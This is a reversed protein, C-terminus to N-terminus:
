AQTPQKNLTLVSEGPSLGHSQLFAALEAGSDRTYIEDLEQREAARRAAYHDPSPPNDRATDPHERLIKLVVNRLHTVPDRRSYEGTLDWEKAIRIATSRITDPDLQHNQALTPVLLMLRRLIDSM